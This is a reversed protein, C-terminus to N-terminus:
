KDDKVKEIFNDWEPFVGNNQGIKAQILDAIMIRNSNTDMPRIRWRFNSGITERIWAEFEEWTGLYKEM